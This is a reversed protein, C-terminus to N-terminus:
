RPRNRISSKQTNIKQIQSGNIAAQTFQASPLRRGRDFIV